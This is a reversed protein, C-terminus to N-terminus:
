LDERYYARGFGFSEDFCGPRDVHREVRLIPIFHQLRYASPVDILAGGHVFGDREERVLEGSKLERQEEDDRKADAHRLGANKPRTHDGYRQQRDDEASLLRATDHQRHKAHGVDHTNQIVMTM